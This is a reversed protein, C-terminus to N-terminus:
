FIFDGAGIDAKDVGRLLISVGDSVIRVGAAVETITLDALRTDATRIMIRDIGDQFDTVIDHGSRSHLVFTDRGAGGAVTDAGLGGDLRDAGDGGFLQDNGAQGFLDDNGAFGLLKDRGDDGELWNAKATGNITFGLRLVLTQDSRGLLADVNIFVSDRDFRINEPPVEFTSLGGVIDVARISTRNATNTLKAFTLDYGNFGDDPANGFGVTSLLTYRITAGSFDFSARGVYYADGSLDYDAVNAIELADPNITTTITSAIPNSLDPFAVKLKVKSYDLVM